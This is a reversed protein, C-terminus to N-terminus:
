TRDLRYHVDVNSIYSTDIGNREMWRVMNYNWAASSSVPYFHIPQINTLYEGAGTGHTANPNNSRAYPRAFSVKQGNRGNGHFGWPLSDAGRCGWAYLSCGAWYNYAQYTNVPLQFTVDPQEVRKDDRVVIAYSQMGNAMETMRALYIGTTWTHNTQVVYPDTWNCTALGYDDPRPIEQVVGSVIVPGDYRRAGLGNYWGTRFIEISVTPSRTNHYLLISDGQQVSTRSMYGEIERDNAPKNLAWDLSGALENEIQIRNKKPKSLAM